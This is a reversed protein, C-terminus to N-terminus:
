ANVDMLAYLAWTGADVTGTANILSIETIAATGLWAGDPTNPYTQPSNDTALLQGTLCRAAGSKAVDITIHGSTAEGSGFMNAGAPASTAAAGASDTYNVTTDGNFRVGLSHAGAAAKTVRGVIEYGRLGVADGNLGTWTWPGAGTQESIFKRSPTSAAAVAFPAGPLQLREIATAISRFNRMTTEDVVQAPRFAIAPRSM